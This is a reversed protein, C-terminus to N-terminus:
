NIEGSFMVADCTKIRELFETELTDQRNRIHM